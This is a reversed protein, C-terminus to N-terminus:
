QGLQHFVREAVHVDGEGVLQRHDAVLQVDVDPLQDRQGVLMRPDVDQRGARTDATVADGDIGPEDDGRRGIAGLDNARGAFDVVGLRTDHDLLDLAGRLAQALRHDGAQAQGVLGIDVVHAFARSQMNDLHQRLLLHALKQHDLRVGAFQRGADAVYGAHAPRLQALGQYGGVNDNQQDVVALEAP